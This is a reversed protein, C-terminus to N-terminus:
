KRAFDGHHTHSDTNEFEDSDTNGHSGARVNFAGVKKHDAGAFHASTGTGRVSGTKDDQVAAQQKQFSTGWTWSTGPQADNKVHAADQVDM